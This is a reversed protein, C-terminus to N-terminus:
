RRVEKSRIADRAPKEAEAEQIKRIERQREPLNFRIERSREDRFYAM